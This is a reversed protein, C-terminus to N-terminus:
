RVRLGFERETEGAPNLLRVWYAGAAVPPTQIALAGSVASEAGKWVVNGEASVLEVRHRTGGDLGTVDLRLQLPRGAAAEAVVREGRMARLEISQAPLTDPQRPTVLVVVLVAAAAATAAWVPKLWAWLRSPEGSAAEHEDVGGTHRAAQRFVKVFGDIEEVRDQCRECILLHEEVEGLKPEGLRDMAYLELIEESVHGDSGPGAPGGM